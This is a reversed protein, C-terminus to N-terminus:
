IGWPTPPSKARQVRPEMRLLFPYVFHRFIFLLFKLNDHFQTLGIFLFSLKIRQDFQQSLPIHFKSPIYLVLKGRLRRASGEWYVSLLFIAFKEKQCLHAIQRYYWM